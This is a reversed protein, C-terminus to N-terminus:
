KVFQDLESSVEIEVPIVTVKSRYERAEREYTKVGCKRTEEQEYRSRIMEKGIELGDSFTREEHKAM